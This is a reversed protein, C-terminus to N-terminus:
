RSNEAAYRATAKACNTNTFPCSFKNVKERVELESRASEERTQQLIKAAEQNQKKSDEEGGFITLWTGCANLACGLLLSLLVILRFRAAKKQEREKDKRASATRDAKSQFVTSLGVVLTGIGILVCGALTERGYLLNLYYDFHLWSM